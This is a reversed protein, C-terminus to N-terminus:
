ESIDNPFRYVNYVEEDDAYINMGGGKRQQFDSIWREGSFIQAHGDPHKESGSIIAVDGPQYNQSEVPIFGKRQLYPGYDGASKSWKEDSNGGLGTLVAERVYRGCLAISQDVPKPESTKSNWATGEVAKAVAKDVNFSAPKSAPKMTSAQAPSNGGSHSSKTASKGAPTSSANVPKSTTSKATSISSHSAQSKSSKVSAAVSTVAKAVASVAKSIVTKIKSVFSSISFHGNPDIFTLPNLSAYSYMNPTWGAGINKVPDTSLFEGAEASYYRARMFYLGPLEEMVGQSGVFTYPQGNLTSINTSGLSRGYPTYAYQSLLVGNTGSLAIINAQADAHFYIVNNTADVKYTLNPGHIYYATIVGSSDMDCLIREMSGALDLVYRTTIGDVTKAIRRGLADYRNTIQVDNLAGNTWFLSATRNDEDYTLTWTQGAGAANTMNGNQDYQYTFNNTPSLADVRNTIRGSATFRSTEDRLSPMPWNMTGRETMNTKNGNRDYAYSLAISLSNTTPSNPACTLATLQGSIDFTNTQIIGNPYSRRILRNANDFSYNMQRGAWDTQNTMRGIADFRQQLIKNGPYAISTIRGLPDFGYGITQQHQDTVTQVRDLQDYTFGTNAVAVNNQRRSVVGPNDNNDYTITNKRGTNFTVSLLRSATDYNFNRIVGNPDTQQTLRLLEDYSYLWQKNDQNRELTRENRPGYSMIYKGSLADTINTINGVGDYDYKWEFNEADIWKTLRGRGDYFHLSPYGNPTIVEKIRGALDYSTRKSDGQPDTDAIVRNLRDYTKSWRQGVQDIFAIVNGNTDFLNTTTFGLANSTRELRNASDFFNTMNNGLPDTVRELKGRSSYFFLNTNGARDVIQTKQNALDYFHRALKEKGDSETLVNGNADFTKTFTRNLPDVIRVVNGNLDLSLATSDGLPNLEGLKWGVDNLTYNWTNTAADTKSVLFGNTDYGFGTVHGNADTSSLVLGNTAYTYTVLTGLDDFHRLLNGNTNSLEYFNTWGLPNIENTAKNFFPHFNWRTIEGLVNTSVIVNARNDYGFTTKWGLPETISTRNGADDYTYKTENGLPDRQTLLRHKRDYTELWSNAAPDINRFQRKDSLYETKTARSLADLENTKRGYKDYQVLVNTNNRPDIIKELLGNTNYAFGWTTNVSTYIGSTNTITKSILRNTADYGFNVQWQGFSINTLLGLAANYHFFYSGGATDIVNTIYGEDENWQIQVKNGNFDRIERLRGAMLSGDTPDRFRYVLREPTTWEFDFDPLQVLEGRYERHRTQYITNTRSWTEISGDWLLLRRETSTQEPVVRTDFTHRWAPGLVRRDYPDAQGDAPASTPTVSSYGFQFDFAIGPVPRAFAVQSWSFAGSLPALADQGRNKRSDFLSQEGAQDTEEFGINGSGQKTAPDTGAPPSSVFNRYFDSANTSYALKYYGKINAFSRQDKFMRDQILNQSLAAQYVAVEVIDGQFLRSNGSVGGIALGSGVANGINVSPFSALQRSDVYATFASQSRVVAVHYWRELYPHEILTNTINGSAGRALFEINGNTINFRIQYSSNAGENGDTRNM